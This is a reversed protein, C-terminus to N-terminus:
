AAAPAIHFKFYGDKNNTRELREMHRWAEVLTAFRGAEHTFCRTAYLVWVM